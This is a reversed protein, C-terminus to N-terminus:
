LRGTLFLVLTTVATGVLATSALFIAVMWRIINDTSEAIAKELRRTMRAWRRDMRKGCIAMMREFDGWALPAGTASDCGM